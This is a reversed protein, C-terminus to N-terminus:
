GSGIDQPPQPVRHDAPTAVRRRVGRPAESLTLHHCRVGTTSTRMSSRSAPAPTPSRNPFRPSGREWGRVSWAARHYPSALGIGDRSGGPDHDPDSSATTVGGLTIRSPHRPRFEREGKFHPSGWSRSCPAVFRCATARLLGDSGPPVALVSRTRHRAPGLRLDPRGWLHDAGSHVRSPSTPPPASKPFGWSLLGTPVPTAACGAGPGQPRAPLSDAVFHEFPRVTGTADGFSLCLDPLDRGPAKQVLSM